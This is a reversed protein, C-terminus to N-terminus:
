AKRFFCVGWLTGQSASFSEVGLTVPGAQSVERSGVSAQEWRPGPPNLSFRKYLPVTGAVYYINLLRKHNFINASSSDSHCVSGANGMRSELWRVPFHGLATLLSSFSLVYSFWHQTIAITKIWCVLHYSWNPFFCLYINVKFWNLGQDLHGLVLDGGVALGGSSALLETWGM